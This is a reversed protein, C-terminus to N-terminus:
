FLVPSLRSSKSLPSSKKSLVGFVWDMFSIISIRPEMSSIRPEMSILVEARAFSLTLLFLLLGYVPSFINAFLLPDFLPYLITIWFVYAM